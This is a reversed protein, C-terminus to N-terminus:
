KKRILRNIKFDLNKLDKEIKQLLKKNKDRVVLAIIQFILWLFMVIGLAQLWSALQKVEQTLVPFIETSVNIFEEVAM